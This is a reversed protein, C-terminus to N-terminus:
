AACTHTRALVAPSQVVVQDLFDLVTEPVPEAGPTLVACLARYQEETVVPAVRFHTTMAVTFDVGFDRARVQLQPGHEGAILCIEFVARGAIHEFSAAPVNNRVMQRYLPRLGGLVVPPLTVARPRGATLM